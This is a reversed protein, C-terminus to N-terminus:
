FDPTSTFTFIDLTDFDKASEELLPLVCESSGEPSRKEVVEVGPILQFLAATQLHISRTITNHRSQWLLSTQDPATSVSIITNIFKGHTERIHKTM